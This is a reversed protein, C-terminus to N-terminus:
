QRKEYIALYGSERAKLTSSGSAFGGRTELWKNTVFVVPNYYETGITEVVSISILKDENM